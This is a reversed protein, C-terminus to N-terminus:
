LKLPSLAGAELLLAPEVAPDLADVAEVTPCTLGMIMMPPQGLCVGLFSSSDCALATSCFYWSTTIVQLPRLDSDTEVVEVRAYLRVTGAGDPAKTSQQGIHDDNHTEPLREARLSRGMEPALFTRYKLRDAANEVNRM